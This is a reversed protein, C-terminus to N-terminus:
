EWFLHSKYVTTSSHPTISFSTLECTFFIGSPIGKVQTAKIMPDFKFTGGTPLDTSVKRKRNILFYQELSAELKM